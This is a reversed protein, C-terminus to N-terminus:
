QLDSRFGKNLRIHHHLDKVVSSLEIMRRLFSRSPKVICCVHQLQGVLSFLERKHLEKDMEVAQNRNAVECTERGAVM